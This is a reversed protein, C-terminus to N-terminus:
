TSADRLTAEAGHAGKGELGVEIESGSTDALAAANGPDSRARWSSCSRRCGRAPQRPVQQLSPFPCYYFYHYHWCCSCILIEALLPPFLDRWMSWCQTHEGRLSIRSPEKELSGEVQLAKCLVEGRPPPTSIEYGPWCCHGELPRHPQCWSSSVVRQLMLLDPPAAHKCQIEQGRSNPDEVQSVAM